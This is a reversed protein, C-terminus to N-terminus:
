QSAQAGGLKLLSYRERGFGRQISREIFLCSRGGWSGSGGDNVAVSLSPVSPPYKRGASHAAIRLHNQEVHRPSELDQSLCAAIAEIRESRIAAITRGDM